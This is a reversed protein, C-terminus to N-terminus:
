ELEKAPLLSFIHILFFFGSSFFFSSSISTSLTPIHYILASSAAYYIVPALSLRAQRFTRSDATPSNALWSGPSQCRRSRLEAYTANNM